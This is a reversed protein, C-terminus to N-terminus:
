DETLLLVFTVLAIGLPVYGPFLGFSAFVMSFILAVAAVGIPGPNDRSRM